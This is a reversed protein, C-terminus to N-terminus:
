CGFLQILVFYFMYVYLIVTILIANYDFTEEPYTKNILSQVVSSILM